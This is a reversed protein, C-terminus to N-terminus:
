WGYRNACMTLPFTYRCARISYLQTSCARIIRKVQNTPPKITPASTIYPTNISTRDSSSQVNEPVVAAATETAWSNYSGTAPPRTELLAEVAKLIRLWVRQGDIDGKELMADAQMGAQIPAAAGHQKM